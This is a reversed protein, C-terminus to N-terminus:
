SSTLRYVHVPQKHSEDSTPVAPPDTVTRLHEFVMGMQRATEALSGPIARDPDALYACGGPALLTQIAGLMPTLQSPDYVIDAGLVVEFAGVLAEPVRSWELQQTQVTLSNEAAIRQVEVLAEPERDVLTVLAGVKAASLGVAGLGCGLELVKRGALQPALERAVMEALVLGAPWVYAWLPRRGRTIRPAPVRLGAVDHLWAAMM